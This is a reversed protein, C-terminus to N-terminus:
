GQEVVVDINSITVINNRLSKVNNIVPDAYFRIDKTQQNVKSITINSVTLEGTAFNITGVGALVLIEVGNVVEYINLSGDATSKIFVTKTGFIFNNSVVNQVNNMFSTQFNTNIRTDPFVRKYIKISTINSKISDDIQDIGATFKSFEFEANHRNLNTSNYSDAYSKVKNVIDSSKLFVYDNVFVRSNIDVYINDVDVIIPIVGAIGVQNIILNKIDTKQSDTLFQSNQTNASIYIRGFQDFFGKGEIGSWVSISNIYPFKERILDSYDTPNAGRNQTVYFKPANRKVSDDSEAELGGTSKTIATAIVNYSNLKNTPDPAGKFSFSKVGNGVPGLTKFYVVRVIVGDNIAQGITGDGFEIGYRGQKLEQLFYIKDVGTINISTDTSSFEVFNGSDPSEQVYVELFNLDISDIPIEYIQSRRNRDVFIDVSGYSGQYLEVGSFTYSGNVLPASQTRVVTFVVIGSDSTGSFQTGKDLTITQPAENLVSPVITLDVAAKSSVTSYPVYGFEKAKKVINKRLVATDINQEAFLSNATISNNQTNYALVSNLLDIVSMDQNYDSIVDQNKMFDRINALVAGFDHERFKLTQNNNAM